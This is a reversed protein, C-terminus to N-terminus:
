RRRNNSNNTRTNNTRSRNSTNNRNYSSRNNPKPDNFMGQLIQQINELDANEIKYIYIQQVNVPNEDLKQIVNQIQILMQASASVIVSNTREDAVATMTTEKLERNSRNNASTKKSSSRNMMMSFMRSRRSTNTNSQKKQTNSNPDTAFIDTLNKAIDKATANKLIFVKVELLEETEIDLKKILESIGPMLEGSANVVLYNSRNDGVALVYEAAMRAESNKKNKSGGDRGGRMFPPLMRSSRSSKRKSSNPSKFANNVIKALQEADAYKLPFVKVEIINAISTDLAKIVQTIRRINTMTDTLVIANSSENCTMIAEKSLLPELNDQLLKADAHLVQIIQTVMADSKKMQEPNNGILVPIDSSKADELPIIKLFRNNLVAAYGKEYLITNLFEVVEEKNLPQQSWANITGEIQPDGVIIFGVEKSLYTLVQNITTGKFNLTIKNPAPPKKIKTTEAKTTTVFLMIIGFSYTIPIIYKKNLKKIFQAIM